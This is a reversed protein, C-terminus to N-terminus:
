GVDGKRGQIFSLVSYRTRGAKIDIFGAEEMMAPLGSFTSRVGHITLVGFLVRLFPNSLPEYDVALFRGGPKLVRCIESFGLRKLDEGPLHHLMLSSLVIDFSNDPFPINEILGVQFSVEAGAKAAKRRAAEIMEPAADIGHVEGYSAVQAMATMTLTGTGCGVDLVKDGQKLGAMDITMERIARERGLTLLWVVIDYSRAWRITRGATHPAHAHSHLGHISKM